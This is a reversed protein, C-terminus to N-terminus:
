SPLRVENWIAGVALLFTGNMVGELHAALAMRINTFHQQALGTLLGILFLAIGHWLLRRRYEMREGRALVGWAFGLQHISEQIISFQGSILQLHRIQA